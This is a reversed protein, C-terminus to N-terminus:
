ITLLMLAIAVIVIALGLWKLYSQRADLVNGAHKETKISSATALRVVDDVGIRHQEYLPELKEKILKRTDEYMAAAVVPDKEARARQIAPLFESDRIEFFKKAPEFSDVQLAKRLPGEPLEKEWVAHRDYYESR